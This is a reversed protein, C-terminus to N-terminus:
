YLLWEVEGTEYVFMVSYSAELAIFSTGAGNGQIEANWACNISDETSCAPLAAMLVAFMTIM